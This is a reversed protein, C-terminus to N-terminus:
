TKMKTKVFSVNQATLEIILCFCMLTLLNKERDDMTETDDAHWQGFINGERLDRWDRWHKKYKTFNVHSM